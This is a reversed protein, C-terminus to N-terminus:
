YDVAYEDVKDSVYGSRRRAIATTKKDKNSITYIDMPEGYIDGKENEYENAYVTVMIVRNDDVLSKAFNRAADIADDASYYLLGCYEMDSVDEESLIDSAYITFVEKKLQSEMLIRNVSEKIIRHLDSERLRIVQKKNM